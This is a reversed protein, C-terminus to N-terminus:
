VSKGNNGDWEHPLKSGKSLNCHQCAYVLNEISNSGNRKLPIVHDLHASEGNGYGTFPDILSVDCWYCKGNQSYFLNEIQQATFHNGNSASIRSRRKNEYERNKAYNLKKWTRKYESIKDKNKICYQKKQLSIRQSNEKFYEQIKSKNKLRYQKAYDIKTERNNKYYKNRCIKCQAHYGDVRSKNKHFETLPKEIRCQSCVKTTTDNNM